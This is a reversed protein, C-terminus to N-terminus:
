APEKERRTRVAYAYTPMAVLQARIWAWRPQLGPLDALYGRQEELWDSREDEPLLRAALRLTIWGSPGVEVNAASAVSSLHGQKKDAKEHSLRSKVKVADLEVPIPDVYGNNYETFNVIFKGRRRTTNRYM